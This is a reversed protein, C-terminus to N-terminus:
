TETEEWTLIGKLKAKARQDLQSANRHTIGMIKAAEKTSYGQSYKLLIITRYNEPLQLIHRTLDDSAMEEWGAAALHESLEVENRIGRKKLLNVAHHEAALTVYRKAEASSPSNISKINRAIAVFANHTADEADEVNKLIKLAITFMLKGYQRYLTEFKIKEEINQIMQLYILMDIVEKASLIGSFNCSSLFIFTFVEISQLCDPLSKKYLYNYKEYRRYARSRLKFHQNTSFCM